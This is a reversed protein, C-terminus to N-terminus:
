LQIQYVDINSKKLFAIGKGQLKPLTEVYYVEKIRSKALLKACRVCPELTIFASAGESSQTSAALKGIANEEAHYTEEKTHGDEDDCCNDWGPPTGNVGVSIIQDDNKVILCGVKRDTCKSLGGYIYAAMMHAAMLEKKMVQTMNLRTLNTERSGKSKMSVFMINKIIM